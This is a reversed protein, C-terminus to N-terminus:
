KQQNKELGPQDPMTNWIVEFIEQHMQIISKNEIVIAMIPPTLQHIVVKQPTIVLNTTLTTKAPLFRMKYNFNKEYKKYERSVETDTQLMRIKIPLKARRETFNQFYDKDLSIWKKQDAIILYNEHPKIDAILSEYVSKVSELGEYYKIFGEAGRFNYLAAFEPLLSKFRDKRAELISELKEPAAAFFLKKLGRVEVNMLGKQQLAEIVSYVTTRKIEAVRAIKLVTAPGLSLSAFYVKSENESLGLDKLADTLTTNKM